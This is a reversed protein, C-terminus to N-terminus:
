HHGSYKEGAEIRVPLRNEKPALPCTAYATFACPPSYAKNFDLVVKGDKPMDTYLFRGGPYTEGKTADSFIFFLSDPEEQIPQLHLEKGNVTFVAEGPVETQETQGLVNSIAIKKGTEPVWKAEVRLKPDTPFWETGNFSKLAPSETDKVRVGIKDSREIVTIRLSGLSLLTPNGTTDVAMRTIPRAPKDDITAQAGSNLRLTVDKGHLELTGLRAPGKPLVVDNDRGSGITNTGPKLWFLGALTIWNRKLSENRKQRFQEIETQYTSDVAAAAVLLPVALMASMFVAVARRRVSM